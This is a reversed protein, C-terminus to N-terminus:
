SATPTSVSESLIRLLSRGHPKGLEHSLGREGVMGRGLVDGNWVLAVPGRPLGDSPLKGGELLSRLRVEDLVVRREQSIMSAWRTLFQSSPTELASPARRLARLGVSVVRWGAKMEGSWAEVPWSGATHAWVHDKRVMWGISELFSVSYGFRHELEIMASEIRATAAPVDGGPFAQPIPSWASDDDRPAFPRAAGAPSGPGRSAARRRLRAMFLGGSDLQHPYVRWAHSLQDSFRRGGWELLGPAHPARLPIPEVSVPADLLVRDLVAENEEPAFTCTSYVITGGPRTLEIARRLLAEQLATIYRTFRPGRRAATGDADRFSGEGSCPADVLVRDFTAAGPLRRGDAAIVIVNAHGMRYVNGLLGRLRKEKPDVAVLPGRENMLESLHVTKGGPAACLDLVREGEAPNLALSPLGMVAQQVHLLGLWHELTLAVSHPARDIRFFGDVGEVPRIDFGAKRLRRVVTHPSALARRVRFTVPERTRMAEEFAPWDPVIDRYRELSM